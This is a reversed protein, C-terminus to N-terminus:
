RTGEEESSKSLCHGPFCTFFKICWHNWVTLDETFREAGIFCTVTQPQAHLILPEVHKYSSTIFYNHFSCNCRQM